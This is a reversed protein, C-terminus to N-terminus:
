KVNYDTWMLIPRYGFQEAVLATVLFHFVRDPTNSNPAVGMLDPFTTEEGNYKDALSKVLPLMKQAVASTIEYITDPKMEMLKFMRKADDTNYVLWTSDFTLDKINFGYPETPDEAAKNKVWYLYVEIM